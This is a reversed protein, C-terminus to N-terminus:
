VELFSHKDLRRTLVLVLEVQIVVENGLRSKVLDLPFLDSKVLLSVMNEDELVYGSDDSKLSEHALLFEQLLNIGDHGM